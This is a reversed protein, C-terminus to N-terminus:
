VSSVEFIFFGTIMTGVMAHLTYLHQPIGTVLQHYKFAIVLGGYIFIGTVVTFFGIHIKILLKRDVYPFLRFM